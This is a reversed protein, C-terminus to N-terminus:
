QRNSEDPNLIPAIVLLAVAGERWDAGNGM